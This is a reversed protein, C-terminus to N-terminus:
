DDLYITGDTCIIETVQTGSRWDNEAATLEWTDKEENYNNYQIAQWQAKTGEFHVTNLATCGAFAARGITQLSAPLTINTLATCKAFAADQITQVNRSMKVSSLRDCNSCAEIDITDVSDSMTLTEIQQTAFAGYGIRTVPFGAYTQSLVVDTTEERNARSVAAKGNQVFYQVWDTTDEETLFGEFVVADTEIYKIGGVHRALTTLDAADVEGDMNLDCPAYTAGNIIHYYIDDSQIMGGIVRAMDTLDLADIGGDHDFDGVKGYQPSAYSALPLALALALSVGAALIKRFTNM